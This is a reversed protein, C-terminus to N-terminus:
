FHLTPLKRLGAYQLFQNFIAPTGYLLTICEKELLTRATMPDFRPALYLTAGAFLSGLLVTALGVAHSMPLIGFVCDRADLSRIQASGQAMFLLNAHTLMVGKPRGTTGSTYILAAVRESVSADLPECKASENLSSVAVSGLGDLEELVAQHAAAHEAAQPSGSTTFIIRRAGSHERIQQLERGSLRANVLVPWADIAATAFLVTVFARSNEGVLMVRDGPRI